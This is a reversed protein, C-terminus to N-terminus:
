SIAAFCRTLARRQPTLMKIAQRAFFTNVQVALDHRNDPGTVFDRLTHSVRTDNAMHYHVNPANRPPLAEGDDASVAANRRRTRKRGAAPKVGCPNSQGAQAANVRERIERILAERRSHWAM